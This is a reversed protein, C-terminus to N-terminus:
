HLYRNKAFLKQQAVNREQQEHYNFKLKIRQSEAHYFPQTHFELHLVRIINM